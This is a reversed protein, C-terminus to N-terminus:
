VDMEVIQVHHMVTHELIATFLEELSYEHKKTDVFYQMNEIWVVALMRKGIIIAAAYHPADRSNLTPHKYVSTSIYENTISPICAVRKSSSPELDTFSMPEITDVIAVSDTRIGLTLSEAYPVNIYMTYDYPCSSSRFTKEATVYLKNSKIVNTYVASAAQGTLKGFYYPDDESSNTVSSLIQGTLKGTYYPNELSSNTIRTLFSRTFDGFRYGRATDAPATSSPSSM